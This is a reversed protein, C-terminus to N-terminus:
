HKLSVKLHLKMYRRYCRIFFNATNTVTRVKHKSIKERQGTKNAQFSIENELSLDARSCKIGAYTHECKCMVIYKRKNDEIVEKYKDTRLRL